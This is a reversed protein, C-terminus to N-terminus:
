WRKACHSSHGGPCYSDQIFGKEQECCNTDHQSKFTSLKQRTETDYHLGCYKKGCTWCFSRGCGFSTFNGDGLLGCYVFSCNEDKEFAFGCWPCCKVSAISLVEKLTNEQEDDKTSLHDEARQLFPVVNVFKRLCALVVIYRSTVRQLRVVRWTQAQGEICSMWTDFLTKHDKVPFDLLLVCPQGLCCRNALSVLIESSDNVNLLHLVFLSPQLSIMSSFIDRALHCQDQYGITRSNTPKCLGWSQLASKPKEFFSTANSVPVFEECSLKLEDFIEFKRSTPIQVFANALSEVTDNESVVVRTQTKSDVIHLFKYTGYMPDGFTKTDVTFKDTSPSPMEKGGFFFLNM